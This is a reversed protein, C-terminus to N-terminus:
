KNETIEVEYRGDKTQWKTTQTKYNGAVYSSNWDLEWQSFDKFAIPCDGPQTAPPIEDFWICLAFLSIAAVLAWEIVTIKM